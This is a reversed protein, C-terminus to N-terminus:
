RRIDYGRKPHHRGRIINTPTAWFEGYKIDIFLM